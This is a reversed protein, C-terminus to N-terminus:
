LKRFLTSLLFLKIINEVIIEYGSFTRSLSVETGLKKKDNAM